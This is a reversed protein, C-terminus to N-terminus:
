WWSGLIGLDWRLQIAGLHRTKGRAYWICTYMLNTKKEADSTEKRSEGFVDLESWTCFTYV